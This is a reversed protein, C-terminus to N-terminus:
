PESKAFVQVWYIAGSNDQWIGVGMYEAGERLLNERHGASDMWAKVVDEPTKQGGAINEGYYRLETDFEHFITSCPEGNPRTHSRVQGIEEARCMAMETVTADGQLAPLGGKEREKNTLLLVEEGLAAPDIAGQDMEVGQYWEPEEQKASEQVEEQVVHSTDRSARNAEFSVVEAAMTQVASSGLVIAALATVALARKM